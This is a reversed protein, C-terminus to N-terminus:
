RLTSAGSDHTRSALASQQAASMASPMVGDFSNDAASVNGTFPRVETNTGPNSGIAGDYDLFACTPTNVTECNYDDLHFYWRLNGDFSNAEGSGSGGFILSGFGANGGDDNDNLFEVATGAGAVGSGNFTNGQATLSMSLPTSPPNDTTIEKNSVVLSVFDGAGAAPTFTNGSFTIGPFNEVLVGRYSGAHGSFTNGSVSMPVGASNHMLRVLSWDAPYATSDNIGAIAHIDNNSLTIGTVSGNPSSVDVGRGFTHNGDITVTTASSASTATAFIFQIDQVGATVTNDSVTGTSADVQIGARLFVGNNPDAAGDITNNTVSVTSGNVRPLGQSNNGHNIAIANRWSYKSNTGSSTRSDVFHNGDIVLGDVFGSALIGEAVFSQDMGFKLNHVEVNKAGNIVLLPQNIAGNIRTILPKHGPDEGVLKLGDKTVTLPDTYTGQAIHITNGAVAEAIAHAITACPNIQVSCNNGIDDGTSDVWREGNFSTAYGPAGDGPVVEMDDFYIGQTGAASGGAYKGTPGPGTSASLDFTVHDAAYPGYNNFVGKYGHEWSPSLDDWVQSGGNDFVKTEVVDNLDGDNFTATIVAKYWAGRTLEPSCQHTFVTSGASTGDSTTIGITKLHFGTPSNTCQPDPTSATDLFALYTLRYSALRSLQTTFEMGPDPSTSASRFWFSYSVTNTVPAGSGSTAGSEGVPAFSPSIISDVSASTFWNSVRLSQNGSHAALPTIEDDLLPGESSKQVTWGNQGTIAAGVTRDDAATWSGSQGSTYPGITRAPVPNFSDAQASGAFALGLLALIIVTGRIRRACSRFVEM